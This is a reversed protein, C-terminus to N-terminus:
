RGPVTIARTKPDIDFVLPANVAEYGEDCSSANVFTTAGHTEIGYGEHIHGFVHVPPRIADIRARLSASGVNEDRPVRDMIFRPPGHTLLVDTNAPIKEWKPALGAEDEMFAWDLFRNTWPSGWFRIGEIEVGSDELYTCNGITTLAPKGARELSYDHNGGILLVHRFGKERKQEVCWADFDRFIDLEGRWTVDGAHVLVDGPPPDLDRHKEHTDSIAVIRM